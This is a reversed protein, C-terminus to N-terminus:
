FYYATPFQDLFAQGVILAKSENFGYHYANSTNPMIWKNNFTPNILYIPSTNNTKTIYVKDDFAPMVYKLKNWIQYYLVTTYSNYADDLLVGSSNYDIFGYITDNVYLGFGGTGYQKLLWIRPSIANPTPRQQSNTPYYYAISIGSILLLIIILLEQYAKLM